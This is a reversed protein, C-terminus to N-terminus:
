EIAATMPMMLDCGPFLWVAPGAIVEALKLLGLLLLGTAFLWHVTEAPPTM